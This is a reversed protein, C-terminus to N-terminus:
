TFAHNQKNSKLSPLLSDTNHQVTPPPEVLSMCEFKNNNHHQKCLKLKNFICEMANHYIYM